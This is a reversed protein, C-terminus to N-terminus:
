SIPLTSALLDNQREIYRIAQEIMAPSLTDVVILHSAGYLLLRGAPLQAQMLRSVGEPTSVMCWRRQGDSLEVTVEIVGTHSRDVHDDLVVRIVSLVSHDHPVFCAAPFWCIRGTDARVKVQKKEDDEAVAVYRRGRTLAGAYSAETICILEM